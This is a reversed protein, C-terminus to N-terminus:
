RNSRWRSWFGCRNVFHTPSAPPTPCSSADVLWTACSFVTSTPHAPTSAETRPAAPPPTPSAAPPPPPRVRSTRAMDLLKSIEDWGTLFVLVQARSDSGYVSASPATFPRLAATFPRLPRWLRACRAGPRPRRVAGAREAACVHELAALVQSLSAAHGILVLPPVLSTWDTRPLPPPPPVLELDTSDPDWRALSARVEASRGALAGALDLDSVPAIGRSGNIGGAGGFGTGSNANAAREREQAREARGRGSGALGGGGGGGGGGGRATKGPPITHGTRELVQL